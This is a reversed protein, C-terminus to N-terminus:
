GQPVDDCGLIGSFRGHWLICCEGICVQWFSAPLTYMRYIAYWHSARVLMCYMKPQMMTARHQGRNTHRCNSTVHYHDHITRMLDWVLQAAAVGDVSAVIVAQSSQSICRRHAFSWHINPLRMLVMLLQTRLTESAMIMHYEFVLFGASVHFGENWLLGKWCGTLDWKGHAPM